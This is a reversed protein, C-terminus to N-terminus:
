SFQVHGYALNGQTHPETPKISDLEEYIAIPPPKMETETQLTIKQSRRCKIVALVSLVGLSVGLVLTLLFTLIVSLIIEAERSLTVIYIPLPTYAHM